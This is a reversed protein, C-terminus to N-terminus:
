GDIVQLNAACSKIYDPWYYFDPVTINTDYKEVAQLFFDNGIGNKSIKQMVANFIDVKHERDKDLVIIDAIQVGTYRLTENNITLEIGELYDVLEVIFDIDTNLTYDCNYGYINEGIKSEELFLSACILERKFDLYVFSKDGAIDLVVGANQPKEQTYPVKQSPEIDTNLINQSLYYYGIGVFVTLCWGSIIVTIFFIKWKKKLCIVWKIIGM